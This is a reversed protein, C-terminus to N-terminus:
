LIADGKPPVGKPVGGKQVSRHAIFEDLFKWFEYFASVDDGDAYSLLMNAYGIQSPMQLKMELWDCFETTDQQPSAIRNMEECASFGQLFAQLRVVSPRGLYMAPRDRVRQLIPHELNM